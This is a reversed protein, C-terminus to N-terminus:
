KLRIFQTSGAAGYVLENSKNTPCIAMIRDDMSISCRKIGYFSYMEIDEFSYVIVNNNAFVAKNYAFDFGQNLIEKGSSDIVLIQYSSESNEDEVIMGIHKKDFFLTQIEVGISLNEAIIEPTGTFDYITYSDDGVVAVREKELFIVNTLVTNQYQNFGGVVMDQGSGGNSFDYFVAKSELTGESVYVYIAALKKGNESLAIDTLYGSSAFVSKATILEGGDKDVVEIYNSEGENTAAAVVGQESVEVDTISHGMTIRKIFGGEDYLYVDKSKMDAVAFYQGCSSFIPQTMEFSEAWIIGDKDFYTVGETACRMYGKNYQTITIQEDTNALEIQSLVKYGKFTRYRFFFFAGVVALVIVVAAIIIARIRRRKRRKISFQKNNGPTYKRHRGDPM